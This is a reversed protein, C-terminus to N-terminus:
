VQLTETNQSTDHLFDGAFGILLALYMVVLGSMTLTKTM